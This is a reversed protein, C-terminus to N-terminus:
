SFLTGIGEAAEKAADDDNMSQIYIRKMVHDTKWGGLRQIQADSLKLVNHCYSAFFHRLDHFRFHPFGNERLFTWFRDSLMSPSLYTARGIERIRNAIDTPIQITRDSDYTKPAKESIVGDIQVAAKSIHLSNGSLDSATVACVEGRRLGMMGLVIPVELDTRKAASLVEKMMKEDPLFIDVKKKQPLTLDPASYGAFKVSSSILGSYNRITKPTKGDVVLQSIIAQFAPAGADCSLDAAPLRKLVKEINKYGRITYPSLVASKADIYSSVADLLSPAMVPASQKAEYEAVLKRVTQKDPGTVSKWKKKGNEEGIYIRANYNGSPLRRIKMFSWDM